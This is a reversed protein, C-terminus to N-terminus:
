PQPEAPDPSPTPNPGPEQRPQVDGCPEPQEPSLSAKQSPPAGELGPKAMKIAEEYSPPLELAYLSYAPPSVTGPEMDRFALPLPPGLPNQVSSYSTVTSHITSDSDVTIVTLDYPRRPLPFTTQAPPRKRQCCFKICSALIGCLLLTFVTLLILWVYWLSTWSASSRCQDALDCSGDASDLAVQLLLILLTLVGHSCGGRVGTATITVTAM